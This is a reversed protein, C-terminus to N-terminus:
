TFKLTKCTVHDILCQTVSTDGKALSSCPPLTFESCHEGFMGNLSKGTATPLCGTKTASTGQVTETKAASKTTKPEGSTASKTKGRKATLKKKASTGQVTETKAASKTTTPEGSTASKTKRRTRKRRIASEEDGLMDRQSEDSHCAETESHALACVASSRGFAECAHVSAARAEACDISREDALCFACFLILFAYAGITLSGGMDKHRQSRRLDTNVTL